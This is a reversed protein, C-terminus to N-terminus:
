KIREKYKGNKQAQLYSIRDGTALIEDTREKHIPGNAFIIEGHKLYTKGNEEVIDKLDGNGYRMTLIKGTELLCYTHNLNIM